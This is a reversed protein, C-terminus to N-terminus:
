LMGFISKRDDYRELFQNEAPLVGPDWPPTMAHMNDGLTRRQIIESRLLSVAAHSGKGPRGCNTANTCCTIAEAKEETVGGMKTTHPELLFFVALTITIEFM